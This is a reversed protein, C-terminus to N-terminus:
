GSVLWNTSDWWAKVIFSGGSTVVARFTNVNSNKIIVSTGFPPNVPLESFFYDPLISANRQAIFSPPGLPVKKWSFNRVFVQHAGDGVFTASGGTLTNNAFLYFANSFSETQRYWLRYRHYGSDTAKVEIGELQVKSIKDNQWSFRQVNSADFPTYITAGDNWFTTEAVYFTLYRPNAGADKAELEILYHGASQIDPLYQYIDHTANATDETATIVGGVDTVTMHDNGWVGPNVPTGDTVAAVKQDAAAAAATVAGAAATAINQNIGSQDFSITKNALVLPAVVPINTAAGRGPDTRGLLGGTDQELIHGDNHNGFIAPKRIQGDEPDFESLYPDNHTVSPESM